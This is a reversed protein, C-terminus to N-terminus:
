HGQAFMNRNALLSDGMMGKESPFAFGKHTKEVTAEELFAEAAERHKWPIKHIDIETICRDYPTIIVSM